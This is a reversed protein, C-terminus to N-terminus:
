YRSRVRRPHSNIANTLLNLLIQKLRLGDGRLYPANESIELDMTVEGKVARNAVIKASAQFLDHVNVDPDEFDMKGAAIKAIDLIDNVLNLLHMGSDQVAGVYERYHDDGLPGFTEVEMASSFGIVSNLPTRLEHSMNAMFESKARSAQEAVEKAEKLAIQTAQIETLNNGLTTTILQTKRFFVFAIALPPLPPPFPPPSLPALPPM